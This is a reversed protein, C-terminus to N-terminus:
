YSKLMIIIYFNVNIADKIRMIKESEKLVAFQRIKSRIFKKTSFTLSVCRFIDCLTQLLTAYVSEDLDFRSLARTLFASTQTTEGNLKSSSHPRAPYTVPAPPDFLSGRSASSLKGHSCRNAGSRKVQGYMHIVRRRRRRERRQQERQSSPSQAVGSCRDPRTALSQQGRARWWYAIMEKKKKRENKKTEEDDELTRLARKGERQM